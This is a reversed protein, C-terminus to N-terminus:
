TGRFVGASGAILAAFSVHVGACRWREIKEPVGLLAAIDSRVQAPKLKHTNM